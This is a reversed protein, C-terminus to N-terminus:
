KIKVCKGQWTNPQDILCMEGVGCQSSNTCTQGVYEVIFLAGILM